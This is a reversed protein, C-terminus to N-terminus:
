KLRTAPDGFLIWTRRIDMDITAAKAKATAEGLTLPEGKFLLSMLQKDMIRQGDPQTLGSSAWVAVAGGQGAKLLAEALTIDYPNPFWGNWCTMDVFFPASLGNTLTAADASTLIDGNWSDDSGHGMYNVLLAGQNIGNLITQNVLTDSAFNSRFITTVAIAKPLLAAVEKTAAEFDFTDSIDSVFLARNTWAPGAPQQEYGVIKTIVTTAEASTRVTIRGIAMEPLGDGNFDAFWDDSATENNVTEILKTPTFDVNGYGLYNRPDVTADGVLLVFRPRKQWSSFATWLLDKLAQPTKDGFSFEDYVDEVDILAVSLGQSERFKKLPGLTGIFDSHSIIVMDAKNDASYWTSPNNATVAAPQKIQSDAFALLIRSGQGPVNITIAYPPSQTVTGTVESVNKSDTIDMVRIQPTSFGGISLRGGGTVSFRLEDNDATYTHWYTLRIVDILSLDMDGGQATLQVQNDGEQLLGSQTINVKTSGENQGDFVVQGVKNNNLMVTVTHQGDMIGQLNVELVAKGSPAPDPHQVSLTVTTPSTPDTSILPGYLRDGELNMPLAPAYIVRPMAELPYPFNPLERNGSGGRVQSVRKGPRTGLILWYTQTDTSPTDLGTGYFEITDQPDFRGDQQGTVAMAVEQGNVYLQLNRPDVKDLGYTVLEPQTLRYWGEQQVSLKLATAGAIDWQAQQPPVGIGVSLPQILGSFPTKSIRTQIASSANSKKSPATTLRSLLASQEKIPIAGQAIVPTVPGYMTRKGNLDADELWYKVTQSQGSTLSDDWWTYPRGATLAIGPGALLASGAVLEPTLPYLKGGEERYLNFGINNIEHGTRWQILVKGNYDTADFSKLKVATPASSCASFIFNSCGGGGCSGGFDAIGLATTQNTLTVNTLQFAGSGSWTQTAASTIVIPSTPTGGPCIVGNGDIIVTGNNTLGGNLTISGTGVNRFTAGSSVSIAGATLSNASGQDFTTGSGVTLTGNVTASGGLTNTGTGATQLDQYTFLPITNAGSGNFSVTSGTITYTNTGPTFTGAIGITGSSALTLSGTSSSTLNNYNFAPITQAGSGNFNITSGTITHGTASGSTFIGAIGITGSSALIKNYNNFTLNNYNGACVYQGDSAQDYSMTGTTITGLSIGPSCTIAGTMSYDSPFDNNLTLSAGPAVTFAIWTGSLTGGSQTFSGSGMFNFDLEHSNASTVPLGGAQVTGGTQNYSGYLNVAPINCDGAYPDGGSCFDVLGGTVIMNGGINMTYQIPPPNPPFMDSVIFTGGSVNLDGGINVNFPGETTALKFQGTGTNIVTLNGNVTTLAGALSVIATQSGSNWTFNGFSQGVGSPAITTVGTVEVTSTSAWTATPITGGNQAHIYTSGSNFTLTGTITGTDTRNITGSVSITTASVNFTTITLTGGSNVTLSTINATAVDVTVNHTNLITVTDAAVPVHGCSWTGVTNWNGTGTSNCVAGMATGPPFLFMLALLLIIVASVQVSRVQVGSVKLTKM